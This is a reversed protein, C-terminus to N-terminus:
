HGDVAATVVRKRNVGGEQELVKTLKRSGYVPHALHLEDLRRM